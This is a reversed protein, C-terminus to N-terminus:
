SADTPLVAPAQEGKDGTGLMTEIRRAYYTPWDESPRQQRYAEDSEKLFQSLQDPGLDNGLLTGLGHEVLYAAYWDAWNDDYAGGLASQEYAGHASGTQSLLSAIARQTETPM